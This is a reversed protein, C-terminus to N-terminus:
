RASVGSPASGTDWIRVRNRGDGKAEYLAQDAAHVLADPTRQADMALAAGVSLTLEILVDGVRVPAEALAERAREALAFM